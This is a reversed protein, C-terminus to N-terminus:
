DVQSQLLRLLTSRALLDTSVMGLVGNEDVVPMSSIENVELKHIMETVTEQPSASIVNRSMIDALPQSLLLGQAAARVIDWDTVVGVLEGQVGVVALIDSEADLLMTAADGITKEATIMPIPVMLENATRDGERRAVRRISIREAADCPLTDADAVLLDILEKMNRRIVEARYADASQRRKEALEQLEASHKALWEDVAKRDGLMDAPIRLHGPTRILHEKAAFIVGGSNVLFDTAILVGRERYVAREMRSRAARRAQDPSYTNAAELILSFSGMRDVTMSAQSAEDVGLYNAVPSAPLLCFAAERLLDNPASSYKTRSVGWRDSLLVDNFYLRTVSGRERFLNFIQEVPLGEPDYLYGLADSIGVVKAGPIREVLM